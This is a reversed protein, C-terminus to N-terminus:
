GVRVKEQLKEEGVRLAEQNELTNGERQLDCNRCGAGKGELGRGDMEKILITMVKKKKLQQEWTGRFATNNVFVGGGLLQKRDM